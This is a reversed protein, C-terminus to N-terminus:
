LVLKLTSGINTKTIVIQKEIKEALEPVHSIIGIFRDKEVLSTLTQCAQELAESDLAGFGEDIFLTDARIGGSYGQVVDSMGLALALSAHFSEGGSLTKVSRYKGTYYDLVQMELNDKSRGDGVKEVRSLEYRGGSMKALRLNAARLIEEFYGALVYQEFVLRKPNNGSAMNDLDKIVGYKSSLALQRKQNEKLSRGIKQLEQLSHNRRNWEELAKQKQQNKEKLLEKLEETETVKKGKTEEKLHAELGTAAQLEQQYKRIRAEMEEMKQLSCFGAEYSKFSRFGAEEMRKNWIEELAACKLKQAEAQSAAAQKQLKKEEQRTRIEQMENLLKLYEKETKREAIERVAKPIRKIQREREALQREREKQQNEFSEAQGKAASARGHVEMLISREREYCDRLRQLEKEDTAEEPEKAIQPHSLSGCVPCPEGERLQRALIGVAARKYAADAKEYVAKKEETRQEQEVYEKQLKHLKEKKESLQKQTEQLLRKQEEYKKLGEYASLVFDRKQEYPKLEKERVALRRLEEGIETEAQCYSESLETANKLNVYDERIEAARKAKNLANELSAIEKKQEQLRKKREQVAKLKELKENIQEAARIKEALGATEREKSTYSKEADALRKKYRVVAEDLAGIVKDYQWSNGYFDEKGLLTELEKEEYAAGGRLMHIDEDMRHKCEMVQKYLEASRAKLIGAFRDYVTTSFIERFIKTKEAPSATLLKAFEGQAIMSIQKFQRYDLILIEQMKRNVEGVGEIISGDPLYLVANEKERTYENKTGKKKPRMYEPNRIIRYRKGAHQMTLEAFTAANSDAFDSRVSNKERMQGSMGGYLAYTIADFITTKGAGTPGTILFLGREKLAEFNIEVVGKYPGWASLVLKEPKM